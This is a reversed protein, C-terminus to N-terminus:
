GKTGNLQNITLQIRIRLEEKEAVTLPAISLTHEALIGGTTKDAFAEEKM